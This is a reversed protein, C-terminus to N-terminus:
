QVLMGLLDAWEMKSAMSLLPLEPWELGGVDWLLASGLALATSLAFGVRGNGIADSM